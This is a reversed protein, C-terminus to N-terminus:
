RGTIIQSRVRAKIAAIVTEWPNLCPSYPSITIIRINNKTAFAEVDKSVHISANDWIIWFDSNNNFLNRRTKIMEKIFNCIYNSNMQNSLGKIGYLHSSSFAIVFYMSFSEYNTKIYGQEGRKSWGYFNNYRSSLSFEDIYILEQGDSELKVQLIASEFLKRKNISTDSNIEM